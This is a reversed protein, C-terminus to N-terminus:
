RKDKHSHFLKLSGNELSALVDELSDGSVFPTNNDTYSTFDIKNVLFFLDCM